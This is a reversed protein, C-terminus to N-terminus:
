LLLNKPKVPLIKDFSISKFVGYITVDSLVWLEALKPLFEKRLELNEDQQSTYAKKNHYHLVFIEKLRLAVPIPIM